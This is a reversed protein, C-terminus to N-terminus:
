PFFIGELDEREPEAGMNRGAQQVNRTLRGAAMAEGVCCTRRSLQGREGAETGALPSSVRFGAVEVWRGRRNAPGRKQSGVTICTKNRRKPAGM